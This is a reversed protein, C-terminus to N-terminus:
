LAGNCFLFLASQYTDVVARRGNCLFIEQEVRFSIIYQSNKDCQRRRHLPIKTVEGNRVLKESLNFDNPKTWLEKEWSTHLTETKLEEQKTKNRNQAGGTKNQKQKPRSLWNQSKSSWNCGRLQSWPQCPFHVRWSHFVRMQKYSNKKYINLSYWGM